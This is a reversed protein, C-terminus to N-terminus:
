LGQVNKIGSTAAYTRCTQLKQAIYTKWHTFRVIDLEAAGGGLGCWSAECIGRACLYSYVFHSEGLASSYFPTVKDDLMMPSRSLPQNKEAVNHLGDCFAQAYCAPMADHQIGGIVKIAALRNKRSNLEGFDDYHSDYM